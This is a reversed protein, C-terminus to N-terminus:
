QNNQKQNNKRANIEKFKNVAEIAEIETDIVPSYWKLMYKLDEITIPTATKVVTPRAVTSARSATGAAKAAKSAKYAKIGAKVGKYAGKIISGGFIDAIGSIGAKAINAFSPNRYAEEIDMATGVLPLFGVATDVYENGTTLLKGGDVFRNVKESFENLEEGGEM